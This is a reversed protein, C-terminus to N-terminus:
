RDTPTTSESKGTEMCCNLGINSQKLSIDATSVVVVVVARGAAVVVVAIRNTKKNRM